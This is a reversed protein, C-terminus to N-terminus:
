ARRRLSAIGGLGALALLAATPLPVAAIQVVLDNYDFDADRNGEPLDEWFLLWNARGNYEFFYTVMHDLGDSNDFAASSFEFGGGRRGWRWANTGDTDTASDFFASGGVSDGHGNVNFLSVFGDDDGETGDDEGIYYGFEQEMAAYRARASLSGFGNTWVDDDFSPRFDGGEGAFQAGTMDVFDEGGFDDVRLIEITSEDGLVAIFDETFGGRPSVTFVETAMGFDQQFIDNLIELHTPEDSEFIPTTNGSASMAFMAAALTLTKKM